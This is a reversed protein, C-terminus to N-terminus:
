RPPRLLPSSRRLVSRIGELRGRLAEKKEAKSSALVALLGGLTAWWYALKRLPHEIANEVFWYRQVTRNRAYQRVTRRNIPSRHHDFQARPVVALGFLHALRHSLDRDEFLAGSISDDFQVEEFVSREYLCCCTSLWQTPVLDADPPLADYSSIHGSPLVRGPDPHDLLFLAKWFQTQLSFPHSAVSSSRESGGVGVLTPSSDLAARLHELCGEALTIDDDFFFVHETSHPLLQLGVNRQRAASPPGDYRYHCVPLSAFQRELRKNKQYIPDDSGDVLVVALHASFEQDAISRLTDQLAQPRNRTCIIAVAESM